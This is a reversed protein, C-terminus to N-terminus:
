QAAAAPTSGVAPAQGAQAPHHADEALAPQAALPLTILLTALAKNM